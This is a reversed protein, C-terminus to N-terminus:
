IVALNPSSSLMGPKRWVAAKRASGVITLRGYRFGGSAEAGRAAGGVGGAM